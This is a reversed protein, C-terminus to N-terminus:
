QLEVEKIVENIEDATLGQFEGNFYYKNNHEVYSPSLKLIEKKMNDTFLALIEEENMDYIYDEFAEDLSNFSLTEDVIFELEESNM